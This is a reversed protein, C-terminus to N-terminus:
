AQTGSDALDTHAHRDRQNARFGVLFLGALATGLLALASPEPVAAPGIQLTFSDAHAGSGWTLVYTGPTVGLSAFTANDWIASDSFATGSVYNGPVFLDSTGFTENSLIGIQSGVSISAFSQGGNGFSFAETIGNYGDDLLPLSNGIIISASPASPQIEAGHFECVSCGLNLDAIDLTGSGTAVVNSGEQTLTVIYSAQAPPASLGPTILLGVGLAVAGTIRKALTM